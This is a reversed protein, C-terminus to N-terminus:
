LPFARPPRRSHQSMAMPVNLLPVSMVQVCRSIVSHCSNEQKGLHYHEQVNGSIQNM